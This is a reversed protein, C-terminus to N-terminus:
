PQNSTWSMKPLTITMEFHEWSWVRQTFLMNLAIFLHLYQCYSKELCLNLSKKRQRRIGSYSKLTVFVVNEEEDEEVLSINSTNTWGDSM